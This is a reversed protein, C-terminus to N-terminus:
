CCYNKRDLKKCCIANILTIIFLVVLTILLAIIGGIGITDIITTLAAFLVGIFFSLVIAVISVILWLCFCDKKRRPYMEINQEM